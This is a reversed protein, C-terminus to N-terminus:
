SLEMRVYQEPPADTEQMLARMQKCLRAEIAPDNIPASQAPDSQLDYLLNPWDDENSTGSQGAIKLLPQNNTFSFPPHLVAQALLDANAFGRMMTPILTYRNCDGPQPKRPRRYYVYRGDTINVRNGHYGFIAADRVPADSLIAPALDKGLMNETPSQGFFGLLTPGLDIAPQVLATRRQGDCTAHRPDHIFLPTHSVEEFLPPWNKALCGHEGLLFGHDTWVILMTDKWMDHRDMADLINGLSEDCKTLLAAYNRRLETLEAESQTARGYGPWDFIPGDYERPYQDRYRRHTTFPEHPDFCEIQVFWNDQEHNRDIFRVGAGFTQSQPYQEDRTIHERNVWDQRRGKGNINVPIIPPKVQGVFPDGEQGRYFEYSDYRGHYTAGGDEFYHYHDTILHTYTGANSLMQPVSDDYPEIPGWGAHLFSPRGTHLDRRAPMCPMSCVYSKDFTVCKKALRSFNPAITWDCGYTPLHHRNLSDFMVMITRM